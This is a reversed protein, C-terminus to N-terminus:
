SGWSFTPTANVGNVAVLTMISLPTKTFPQRVHFAVGVKDVVMVSSPSGEIHKVNLLHNFKDNLEVELRDYAGISRM